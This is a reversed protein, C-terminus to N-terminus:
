ENMELITIPRSWHEELNGFVGVEGGGGWPLVESTQYHFMVKFLSTSIKMEAIVDLSVTFHIVSTWKLQHLFFLMM